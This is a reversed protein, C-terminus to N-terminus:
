YHVKTHSPLTPFPIPIPSVGGETRIIEEPAADRRRDDRGRGGHGGGRAALRRGRGGRGQGRSAQRAGDGRRVHPAQVRRLKERGPLGEAGSAQAQPDRGRARRRDRRLGRRLGHARGPGAHLGQPGRRPAAVDRARRLAGLRGRLERPGRGVPGPGGGRGGGRLGIIYYRRLPEPRRGDRPHRLLPHHVRGLAPRRLREAARLLGQLVRLGPVDGQEGLRRRREDVRAQLRLRRRLQLQRGRGRLPM